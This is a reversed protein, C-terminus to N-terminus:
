KGLARFSLFCSLQWCYPSPVWQLWGCFSGAAFQPMDGIWGAPLGLEDGAERRGAALQRCTRAASMAGVPSAAFAADDGFIGVDHVCSVAIRVLHGSQVADSGPGPALSLVVLPWYIREDKKQFLLIVQLYIVFWAFDLVQLERHLPYIRGVSVAAALLMLVNAAQRSIHFLGTVDTLWISLAAAMVVVLPPWQNGEGMGLLIAGLATLTALNIQLLREVYM